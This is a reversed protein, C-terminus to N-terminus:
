TSTCTSRCTSLLLDHLVRSTSRCFLKVLLRKSARTRSTSHRKVVGQRASASDICYLAFFHRRPASPERNVDNAVLREISRVFRIVRSCRSTVHTGPTLVHMCGCADSDEFLPLTLFSLLCDWLSKYASANRM